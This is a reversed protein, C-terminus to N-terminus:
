LQSWRLLWVRTKSYWKSQTLFNFKICLLQFNYRLFTESIKSNHSEVTNCLRWWCHISLTTMYFTNYFLYLIHVKYAYFIFLHEIRQLPSVKVPIPIWYNWSRIAQFYPCFCIVSMLMIVLIGVPWPCVLQSNLPTASSYFKPRDLVFEALPWPQIQVKPRLIALGTNESNPWEQRLNDKTLRYVSGGRM